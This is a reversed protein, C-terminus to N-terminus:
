MQWFFAFSDYKRGINDRSKMISEIIAEGMYLKKDAHKPNASTNKERQNRKINQKKLLM